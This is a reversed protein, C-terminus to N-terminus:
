ASRGTHTPVSVSTPSDSGLPLPPPPPSPLPPQSITSVDESSGDEGAMPALYKTLSMLLTKSHDPEAQVFRASVPRPMTSAFVRGAASGGPVSKKSMSSTTGSGVGPGGPAGPAGPAVPAVPGGPGGPM